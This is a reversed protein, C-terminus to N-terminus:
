RILRRLRMTTHIKVSANALYNKETQTHFIKIFIHPTRACVPSRQTGRMPKVTGELKPFELFVRAPSDTHYTRIGFYAFRRGRWTSSRRARDIDGHTGCLDYFTIEAHTSRVSIYATTRPNTPVCPMKIRNQCHDSTTEYWKKVFFWFFVM